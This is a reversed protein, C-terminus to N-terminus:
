CTPPTVPMVYSAASSLTLARLNVAGVFDAAPVAAQKSPFPFGSTAAPNPKLYMASGLLGIDSQSNYKGWGTRGAPIVTEFPPATAPFANTMESRFQATGSFSHNFVNEADDYLFGLLSGLTSAGTGLNGGIRNIVLFTRNGDARSPIDSLQLVRPVRNYGALDVGNFALSATVSNGDCVPLTGTYLAAVAVAGLTGRFGSALNVHGNGTLFNFAVPCGTVGSVTIAVLYGTVDPRIQSTNFSATQNATLCKFTGAVGGTNGDVFFLRVFAASTSSTNTLSIRTDQAAPNASTSTYLNYFLISGAKQDSAESTNPFLLGPDAAGAAGAGGLLGAVLGLLVLLARSTKM